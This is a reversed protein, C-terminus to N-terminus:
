ITGSGLSAMSTNTASLVLVITEADSAEPGGTLDGSTGSPVTFPREPFSADAPGM